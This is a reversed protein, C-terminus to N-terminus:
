QTVSSYDPSGVIIVRYNQSTAQSFSIEVYHNDGSTYRRVNSQVTNGLNDLVQVLVFDTGLSHQVTYTQKGSQLTGVAIIDSASIGGSAGGGIRITDITANSNDDKITLEGNGTSSLKLKVAKSSNIRLNTGNVNVQELVNTEGGSPTSGGGGVEIWQSGDYYRIRNGVSDYYITGEVPNDPADTQIKVNDVENYRLDVNTYIKM